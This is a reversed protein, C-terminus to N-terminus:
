LAGIQVASVTHQVPMESVSQDSTQFSERSNFFACATRIVAILDAGDFHWDAYSFATYQLSTAWTVGTDDGLLQTVSTRRFTIDGAKLQGSSHRVFCLTLQTRLSTVWTVRMDRRCSASWHSCAVSSATLRHTGGFLMHIQPHRWVAYSNTPTELGCARAISAYPLQLARSLRAPEAVASSSSSSWVAVSLPGAM